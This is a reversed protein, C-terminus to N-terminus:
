EDPQTRVPVARFRHQLFEPGIGQFIEIEM